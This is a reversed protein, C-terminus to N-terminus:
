DSDSDLAACRALWEAEQSPTLSVEARVKADFWWLRGCERCRVTNFLAPAPMFVDSTAPADRCCPAYSLAMHRGTYDIVTM